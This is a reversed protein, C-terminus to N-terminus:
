VDEKGRSGEAGEVIAWQPSPSFGELDNKDGAAKPMKRELAV